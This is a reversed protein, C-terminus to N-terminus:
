ANTAKQWGKSSETWLEFPRNIAVETFSPNDLFPQIGNINLLGNLTDARGGVNFNASNMFGGSILM